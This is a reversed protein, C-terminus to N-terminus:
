KKRRQFNATKWADVAAHTDILKGEETDNLVQPNKGKNTDKNPHRITCSPKTHGICGCGTCLINNGEYWIQQKLDGIFIHTKVPTNM